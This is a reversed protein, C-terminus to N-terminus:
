RDGEQGVQSLRDAYLTEAEQAANELDVIKGPPLGVQAVGGEAQLRLVVGDASDIVDVDDLDGFRAYLDPDDGGDPQQADADTPGTENPGQAKTEM